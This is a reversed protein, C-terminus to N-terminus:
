KLVIPRADEPLELGYANIMKNVEATWADASLPPQMTIYRTSHCTSCYSSAEQRDEGAPLDPPFLPFAEVSYVAGNRLHPPAPQESAGLNRPDYYGRNQQAHSINGAAAITIALAM